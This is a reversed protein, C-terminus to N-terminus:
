CAMQLGRDTSGLGGAGGVRAVATVVSARAAVAVRTRAAVAAVGRSARTAVAAVSGVGRSARATGSRLGSACTSGLGGASRAAVVGGLGAAVGLGGLGALTIILLVASSAENSGRGSEEPRDHSEEGQLHHMKKVRFFQIIYLPDKKERRNWIEIINRSGSVFGHRNIM